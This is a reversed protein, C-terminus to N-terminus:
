NVNKTFITVLYTKVNSSHTFWSYIQLVSKKQLYLMRIYLSLDM